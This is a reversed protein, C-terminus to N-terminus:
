VTKVETGLHLEETEENFYTVTISINYYISYTLIEYASFILEFLIGIGYHHIDYVFLWQHVQYVLKVVFTVELLNM